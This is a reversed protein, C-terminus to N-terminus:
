ERWGAPHMLARRMRQVWEEHRKAQEDRQPNDRRPRFSLEDRLKAIEERQHTLQERLRAGRDAQVARYLGGFAIAFLFTGIMFASFARRKM